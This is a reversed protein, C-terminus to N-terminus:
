DLPHLGAVVFALGGEHGRIARHHSGNLLSLDQFASFNHPRGVVGVDIQAVVRRLSCVGERPRQSAGGWVNSGVGAHLVAVEVVM